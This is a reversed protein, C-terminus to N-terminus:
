VASCVRRNACLHQPPDRFQGTASNTVLLFSCLIHPFPRSSPIIVFQILHFFPFISFLFILSPFCVDISNYFSLIQPFYPFDKNNKHLLLLLNIAQQTLTSPFTAPDQFLSCISECLHAKEAQLNEAGNFLNSNNPTLLTSLLFKVFLKKLDTAQPSTLSNLNDLISALASVFRPNQTETPNNQCFSTFAQLSDNFTRSSQATLPDSAIGQLQSVYKEWGEAM